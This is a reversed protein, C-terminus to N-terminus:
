LSLLKATFRKKNYTVAVIILPSNTNVPIYTKKGPPYSQSLLEKGNINYISVHFDTTPIESWNIGIRGNNYGFIPEKYNYNTINESSVSGGYGCVEFIEIIDESYHTINSEYYINE